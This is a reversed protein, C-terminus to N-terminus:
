RVGRGCVAGASRRDCLVVGCPAPTRSWGDLAIADACGNGGACGGQALRRRWARRVSAVRKLTSGSVRETKVRLPVPERRVELGIMENTLGDDMM